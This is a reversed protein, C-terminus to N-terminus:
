AVVEVPKDAPLDALIATIAEMGKPKHIRYRLVRGTAGNKSEQGFYQWDWARGAESLWGEVMSEGAKFVSGVPIEGVMDGWVGVPVPCGSGGHDIWQDFVLGSM